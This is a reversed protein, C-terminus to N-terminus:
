AEALARQPQSEVSRNRCKVGVCSTEDQKLPALEPGCRPCKRAHAEMERQLAGELQDWAPLAAALDPRLCAEPVSPGNPPDIPEM